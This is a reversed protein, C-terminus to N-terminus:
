TKLAVFMWFVLDNENEHKDMENNMKTLMNKIQQTYALDPSLIDRLQGLSIRNLTTINNLNKTTKSSFNLESAGNSSRIPPPPPAMVATPPEAFSVKKSNMIEFQKLLSKTTESHLKETLKTIEMHSNAQNATIGNFGKAFVNSMQIMYSKMSNRNQLETELKELRARWEQQMKEQEELKEIRKMIKVPIESDEEESRRKHSSQEHENTHVPTNSISKLIEETTQVLNEPKNIIASTSDIESTNSSEQEMLTVAAKAAEDMANEQNMPTNDNEIEESLFKMKWEDREVNIPKEMLEKWTHKTMDKENKFLNSVYTLDHILDVLKQADDKPPFSSIQLRGTLKRALNEKSIGAAQCIPLEGIFHQINSLVKVYDIEFKEIFEAVTKSTGANYYIYCSKFAEEGFFVTDPHDKIYSYCEKKLFKWLSTEHLDKEVIKAFYDSSCVRQIANRIDSPFDHTPDEPECADYEVPESATEVVPKKSTKSSSRGSKGRNGSKPM